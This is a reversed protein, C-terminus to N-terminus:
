GLARGGTVALGIAIEHVVADWEDTPMPPLCDTWDSLSSGRLQLLGEPRAFFWVHLHESGDGLKMAHVPGVGGLATLARELRLTLLGLEAAHEEDPDALDLHAIPCLLVVPIPVPGPKVLKWRDDAWVASDLGDAGHRLPEPLVPPELRKVLLEGEFPFIDWSAVDPLALRGHSDVAAAARDLLAQTRPHVETM